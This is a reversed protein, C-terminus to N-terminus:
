VFNLGSYHDITNLNTSQQNLKHRVFGFHWIERVHFISELLVTVRPSRPGNIKMAGFQIVWCIDSLKFPFTTHHQQRLPGFLYRLRMLMNPLLWWWLEHFATEMSTEDDSRSSINRVHNLLADRKHSRHLFFITVHSFLKFFEFVRSLSAFSLFSLHFFSSSILFLKNWTFTFNFPSLLFSTSRGFM